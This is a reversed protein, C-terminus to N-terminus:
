PDIIKVEERIKAIKENVEKQEEDILENGEVPESLNESDKFLYRKDFLKMFSIDIYHKMNWVWKGRFAMGFKSGIAM